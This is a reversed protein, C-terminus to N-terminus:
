EPKDPETGATFNWQRIYRRYPRVFLKCNGKPIMQSTDRMSSGCQHPCIYRQQFCSLGDPKHHFPIHSTLVEVRISMRFLLADRYLATIQRTVDDSFHRLMRRSCCLFTSLYQRDPQCWRNETLHSRFLLRRRDTGNRQAVLCRKVRQFRM